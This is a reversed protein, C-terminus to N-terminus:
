LDYGCRMCTGNYFGVRSQCEPCPRHVNEGYLSIMNPQPYRVMDQAYPLTHGCNECFFGGVAPARSIIGCANCYTTRTTQQSLEQQYQHVSHLIKGINLGYIYGSNRGANQTLMGVIEGDTNFIPNGGADLLHNIITPFWYPATRHRTTRKNTRLGQGSHTVATLTMNEPINPNRSVPTLRELQVNVQVLALDFEPFSRVVDGQLQRGDLLHIEVDLEGGVVYRTTVVLGTHTVFFGTGAGNPGGIVGVTRQPKQLYIPQELQPRSAQPNFQQQQPMGQPPTNQPSGQQFFADRNYGQNGQQPNMGQPPTNQPSGQQFFADRNYGQNGQPPTNQGYGQNGQQPNMGQPPTDQGYGQNGQQPNQAPPNNDPLQQSMWYSLRQNVDQNNPDAQNAQQYCDIKFSVDDRTEALWMLAVARVGPQMDQEKLAIRILRAGEDHQGARVAEIGQQLTPSAM